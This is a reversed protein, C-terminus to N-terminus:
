SDDDPGSARLRLLIPLHDSCTEYFEQIRTAYGRVDIVQPSDIVESTAEEDFVLMHDYLNTTLEGDRSLTSGAGQTRVRAEVVDQLQAPALNFAGVIIIDREGTRAAQIAAFVVDINDAEDKIESMAGDESRAHYAGLLFDIGAPSTNVPAEFCGFAPERVFHDPGSGAASGDTEKYYALGKWDACPRVLATRYLIAYFEADRSATKPRPSNTIMGAWGSGLAALLADYGPHGGQEQMVGIIAIVDFNANIIQAILQHNTSVSHGLKKIKWSGIRIVEGADEAESMRRAWVKSVYGPVGNNLRIHYWYPVSEVLEASESRRLSGIAPSEMSPRHRVKVRNTVRNNPIIREAAAPVVTTILVFLMICVCWLWVKTKSNM